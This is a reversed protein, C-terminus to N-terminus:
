RERWLLRDAIGLEQQLPGIATKFRRADRPYGATPRLEPLQNCWFRNFPRMALERMYKSAMSALATPLFREARPRFCVEVRRHEPGFRYFSAQRSEGYVEVLWDDVYHQLLQSYCNRGGHKDCTVAVQGDPLRGLVSCLLALTLHSLAAGKNGYEALLRNLEEPFVARCRVSLLRVGAQEFCDQMRAAARQLDKVSAVLPLGDDYDLFWPASALESAADPCLLDWLQQWRSPRHDMTALAALLGRELLGLGLAPNYIAKSDALVVRGQHHRAAAPPRSAVAKRLVRYLDAGLAADPVSWVTASIVLPGLNPGYGAEDMGVLFGM